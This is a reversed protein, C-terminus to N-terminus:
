AWIRGIPGLRRHQMTRGVPGLSGLRRGARWDQETRCGAKGAPEQGEPKRAARRRGVLEAVPRGQAMWGAQRSQVIWGMETNKHIVAEQTSHSRVAPM